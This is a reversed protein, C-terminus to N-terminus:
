NGHWCNMCVTVQSFQPMNLERQMPKENMGTRASQRCLHPITANALSWEDEVKVPYQYSLTQKLWAQSTFMISSWIFSFCIQAMPASAEVPAEVQADAVVEFGSV